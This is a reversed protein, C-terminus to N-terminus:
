DGSGPTIYIQSTGTATIGTFYSNIGFSLIEDTGPLLPISNGSTSIVAANATANASTNGVGLFVTQNGANIIRYQGSMGASEYNSAQVPSPASTNAIFAVTKGYPTFPNM